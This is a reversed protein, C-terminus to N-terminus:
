KVVEFQHESHLGWAQSVLDPSGPNYPQAVYCSGTEFIFLCYFLSLVWVEFQLNVIQFPRPTAKLHILFLLIMVELGQHVRVSSCLTPQCRHSM